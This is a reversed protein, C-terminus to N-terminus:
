PADSREDHHELDESQAASIVIFIFGLNVVLGSAEPRADEADIEDDAHDGANGHLKLEAGVPRSKERKAPPTMPWVSAM